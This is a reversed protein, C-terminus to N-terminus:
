RQAIIEVPAIAGARIAAIMNAMKQPAEPGMIIQLGLPSPGAAQRAQMAAAFARATDSRDLESVISFGAAELATRYTAPPTVFSTQPTSAWPLPFGLEGPGIRMVDYIAFMGGARLVRHVGACLAAKDAINMGVHLLMAGDFSADPFPLATASGQRFSVLDGLDMRRALSTAVKAYEASLELGTVRCGYRSALHRAPGGIGCGLDLLHMSATLLLAEGLAETAAGGGIHFEDAGDLDDPQLRERDRGMAALGALLAAELGGHRYHAAVDREITM